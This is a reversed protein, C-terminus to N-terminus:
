RDNRTWGTRIPRLLAPAATDALASAPPTM